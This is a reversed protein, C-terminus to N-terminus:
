TFRSDVSDDRHLFAFVLKLIKRSSLNLSFLFFMNLCTLLSPLFIKFFSDNVAIIQYYILLTQEGASRLVGIINDVEFSDFLCVLIFLQLHNNFIEASIVSVIIKAVVSVELGDFWFFIIKYVDEIRM